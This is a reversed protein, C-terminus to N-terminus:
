GDLGRAYRLGDLYTVLQRCDEREYVWTSRPKKLVGSELERYREPTLTEFFDALSLSIPDDILAGVGLSKLYKGTEVSKIAIPVAGYLGGEYIRNPLLWSSNLGQDFMDIAWSFHVGRYIGALDAPNKYPGLFKIGPMDALKKGLDGFLDEAPRGRIVVEITGKSQQVLDTLIRLSRPCRIIGFWGIIWPPGPTRPPLAAPSSTEGDIDLVKNEIMRIPLKVRSRRNFYNAVFAPSSTFLAAARRSLWGELLRLFYGEPGENLMLRHIDLCEYVLVPAHACLSRGRVGIALMELNRAIIVDADRFLAVHKKITATERLVSLMRRVFGANFTRGFDVTRCGDVSGIPQATRRFGAATVVAGGARLMAVRRVIAADSLDHALVLIKLSGTDPM